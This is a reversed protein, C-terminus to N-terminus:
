LEISQRPQQDPSNQQDSRENETREAPCLGPAKQEADLPDRSDPAHNNRGKPAPLEEMDRLFKRPVYFCQARDPSGDRLWKQDKGERGWVWGIVDFYPLFSLVSIYARDDKDHPRLCLDEHKRSMNTRVEFKGVDPAAPNGVIPEWYVNLAKATAMEGAAGEFNTRFTDPGCNDTNWGKLIAQVNRCAAVYSAVMLETASLKVRM